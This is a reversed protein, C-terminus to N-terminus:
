IGKAKLLGQGKHQEVFEPRWLCCYGAAGLFERIQRKMNPTPIQLIFAVARSLPEKVLSTAM